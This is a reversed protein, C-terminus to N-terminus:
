FTLEQQHMQFPLKVPFIVLGNKSKQLIEGAILGNVTASGSQPKLFGMLHRITTTKGAGNTGVFGFVEGKEISLNLDLIGRGDGYDKTLQQIDILAM